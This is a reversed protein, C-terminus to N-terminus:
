SRVETRLAERATNFRRELGRLHEAPVPGLLQWDRQIAMIEDESKMAVKGTQLKTALQEVQMEMRSQQLEPPSEVGALIEMRLCLEQKRHLNEMKAQNFHAIVSEAKVRDSRLAEICELARQYRQTMAEEEEGGLPALARWESQASQLRATIQTPHLSTQIMDEALAELETCIKSKRELLRQQGLVKQRHAALERVEAERCLTRFQKTLAPEAQRPVPGVAQWRQKFGQVRGKFESSPNDHAALFAEFEKLLQQKEQLHRQREQHKQDVQEQRVAFVADCTERFREWLERERAAPGLAKWQRQLDKLAEVAETVAKPDAAKSDVVSQRIRGAEGILKEKEIRSKERAEDTVARMAEVYRNFEKSVKAQPKRDAPGIERWRQQFHKLQAAIRKVDREHEGRGEVYEAVFEAAEKCLEQKKLLNERRQAAQEAFFAQCPEYARNCAENFTQWLAEVAPDNDTPGLKKWKERLLKVNEAAAAVDFGAMGSQAHIEEALAQAERCLEERAPTTAFGQWDRMEKLRAVAAQYRKLVQQERLKRTDYATLKGIIKHLQRQREQAESIKGAELLRGLEEVAQTVAALRAKREELEQKRRERCAKVAEQLSQLEAAPLVFLNPKVLERWKRELDKVAQEKLPQPSELMVAAKGNMDVLARMAQFYVEGDAIYAQLKALLTEFRESVEKGEAGRPAEAAQWRAAADQAVAQLKEILDIDPEQRDALEKLLIELEECLQRHVGLDSVSDDAVAPPPQSAPIGEPVPQGEEEVAPSAAPAVTADQQQRLADMLDHYGRQARGMRQTLSDEWPGLGLEQWRQMAEQFQEVFRDYNAEGRQINREKRMVELLAELSQCAHRAQALLQEPDPQTKGTLEALRGCARRHVVQDSKRTEEVVKELLAEQTLRALAEFRVQQDPDKIAIDACLSERQVCAVAARRIQADEATRALEEILRAENVIAKLRALREALPIGSHPNGILRCFHQNAHARVTADPDSGAIHSVIDLDTLRRLANQRLIPDPDNRAIFTIIELSQPDDEALEQLAQKRVQPNKHQWKPKFFNRLFRM